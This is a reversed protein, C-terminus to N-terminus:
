CKKKILDCDEMMSITCRKIKGFPCSEISDCKIREEEQLKINM